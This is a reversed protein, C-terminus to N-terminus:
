LRLIWRALFWMDLGALVALILGLTRSRRFVFFGVANLALVAALLINAFLLKDIHLHLISLQDTGPHRSSALIVVAALSLVVTLLATWRAGRARVAASRGEEM